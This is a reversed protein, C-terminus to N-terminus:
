NLIVNGNRQITMAKKDTGLDTTETLTVELMGAESSQPSVRLLGRDPRQFTINVPTKLSQLTVDSRGSLTRPKTDGIVQYSINTYTQNVLKVNVKGEVPVVTATPPQQQEPLPPTAPTVRPPTTSPIDTSGPNSPAESFLSPRPNLQAVPMATSSLAIAPVGALLCGCIAKVLGQNNKLWQNKKM